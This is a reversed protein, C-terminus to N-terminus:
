KEFSSKDPFFSEYFLKLWERDNDTIGLTDNFCFLGPKWKDLMAPGERWGSRVFQLSDAYPPFFINRIRRLLGDGPGRRALRFHGRRKALAEYGYVARQITEPSRFHSKFPKVIEESYQEFTKLVDSTLYADVNHHPSRTVASFFAKGPRLHRNRVIDAARKLRFQYPNTPNWDLAKPKGVYRFYPFGDEAYFFSPHLPRCFMTDDNAYLFREAIGPIKAIHHEICSSDFTPLFRCPIIESHRVVCLRSSDTRLWMPLTADDDVVLFIKRIWPVFSEASRLAYKIEDNGAFRCEANAASNIELGCAQATSIRKSNWVPDAADCWAYVLDISDYTNMM